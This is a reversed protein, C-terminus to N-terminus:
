LSRGTSIPHLDHKVLNWCTLNCEPLIYKHTAWHCPWVTHFLLFLHLEGSLRVLFLPETLIPLHVISCLCLERFKLIKIWFPQSKTTGCIWRARAPISLSMMVFHSGGSVRTVFCDNGPVWSIWPHFIDVDTGFYIRISQSSRRPCSNSVTLRSYCAM